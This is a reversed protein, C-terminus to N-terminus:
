WADGRARADDPPDAGKIIAGLYERPDQKTAATEIAARALPVSNQKATLLRKILGGTNNGLLQKGRRFLDVEESPAEQPADKEKGEQERGKGEGQDQVLPTPCADVVRPARTLANNENPAPLTSAQERNNVVQHTKFTPISGYQRGEVEYFLIFGRTALAHLVRSFDVEDYPLCDLKLERPEWKFRGERDAATWLGAFAIRLPLGSEVEAEYL